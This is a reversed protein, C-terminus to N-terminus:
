GHKGTIGFIYGLGQEVVLFGTYLEVLYIDLKNYGALESTGRHRQRPGLQACVKYSELRGLSGTLARGM